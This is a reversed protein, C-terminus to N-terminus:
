SERGLEERVQDRGREGMVEEGTVHRWADTGIRM